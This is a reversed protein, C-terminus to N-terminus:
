IYVTSLLPLKLRFIINKLYAWQTGVGPVVEAPESAATRTASLPAVAVAAAAAAAVAVAVAVALSREAVTLTPCGAVTEAAM